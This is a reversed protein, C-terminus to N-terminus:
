RRDKAPQEFQLGERLAQIGQSTLSRVTGEACGLAEATDRISFGAYHRLVVAARQRPPVAELASWLALREATLDPAQPSHREHREYARREARRRRRASAALNFAVRYTWAEPSAMASVASWREWTRALAEQALDEAVLRDDCQLTLSGILRPSVRRCFEEITEGPPHDVDSFRV